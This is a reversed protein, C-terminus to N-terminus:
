EKNLEYEKNLKFAQAHRGDELTVPILHYQDEWSTLKALDDPTVELVDGSLKSKGKSPELTNFDKGEPTKYPVKKFGSISTKSAKEKHKLVHDRSKPNMLTAYVFLLSPRRDGREFVQPRGSSQM